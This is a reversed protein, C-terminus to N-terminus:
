TTKGVNTCPRAASSVNIIATPHPPSCSTKRMKPPLSTFLKGFYCIAFSNTTVLVLRRFGDVRSAKRGVFSMADHSINDSIKMRLRLYDIFSDCMNSHYCVCLRVPNTELAQDADMIKVKPIRAVTSAVSGSALM